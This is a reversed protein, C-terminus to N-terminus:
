KRDSLVSDEAREQKSKGFERREVVKHIYEESYYSVSNEVLFFFNLSLVSPYPSHHSKWLM